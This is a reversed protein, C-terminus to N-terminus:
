LHGAAPQEIFKTLLEVRAVNYEALKLRTITKVQYLGVLQSKVIALDPLVVSHSRLRPIALNM